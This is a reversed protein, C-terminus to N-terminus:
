LIVRKLRLSNTVVFVSSFAMAAASLMPNLMGIAALPILIINYFFAWFLNQKITRVTKQSLRIARPINELDGSILTVPAAAMAIDTGTGVAIGLESQALAPADNVGDGVMAVKRGESQLERIAEAKGSPLVSALVRHIGVQAAVARATEENDGRLLVIQYSMKTLKEVVGRASEKIVDAVGILGAYKDDVAVHLLTKAERGMKTIVKSQNATKVKYREMLKQNGVAVERGNVKGFIGEGPFSTFTKVDDLKLARNGAEAILAEGLPHESYRELSAALQLLEDSTLSKEIVEVDSVMPQGRTITGTKDMVVTDIKQAMELAEGSRFLIGNQAGKGTGVM